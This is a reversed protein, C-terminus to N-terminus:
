RRSDSESPRDANKRLAVCHPAANCEFPPALAAELKIRKLHTARQKNTFDFMRLSPYADMVKRGAGACERHYLIRSKMHGPLASYLPPNHKIIVFFPRQTHSLTRCICLRVSAIRM